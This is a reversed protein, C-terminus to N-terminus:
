SQPQSSEKQQSSGTGHLKILERVPQYQAAHVKTIGMGTPYVDPKAPAESKKRVKPHAAHRNGFAICEGTGALSVLDAWERRGIEEEGPKLACYLYGREAHGYTDGGGKAVAFVGWLQIREPHVGKPELVVKDVIAYIGIPDSARVAAGSVGLLFLGAVVTAARFCGVRGFRRSRGGSPKEGACKLNSYANM